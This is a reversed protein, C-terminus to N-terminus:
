PSVEIERGLSRGLHRGAEAMDFFSDRDASILVLSIRAEQLRAIYSPNKEKKKLHQKALLPCPCSKVVQPSRGSWQRPMNANRPVPSLAALLSIGVKDVYQVYAHLFAAPNFTPLCVPTFSEPAQLFSESSTIFNSLVLLDGPDLAHSRTQAVACVLDGVLM